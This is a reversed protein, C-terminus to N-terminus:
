SFKKFTDCTIQEQFMQASCNSADSFIILLIIKVFYCTTIGITPQLAVVMSIVLPYPQLNNDTLDLLYGSKKM